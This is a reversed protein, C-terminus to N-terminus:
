MWGGIEAQEWAEDGATVRGTKKDEEGAHLARQWAATRDAEARLREIAGPGGPRWALTSGPVDVAVKRCQPSRCAYVIFGPVLTTSVTLPSRCTPCHTLPM